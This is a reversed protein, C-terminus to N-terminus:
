LSFVDYISKLRNFRGINNIERSQLGKLTKLESDLLLEEEHGKVDERECKALLIKFESKFEEITSLIEAMSFIISNETFDYASKQKHRFLYFTKSAARDASRPVEQVELINLKVLKYVENRVSKEKLLVANAISKEDGLKQTKICRLIRFTNQGLTAKIMTEFYNQKLQDVLQNFPVTYSGPTVEVLFQVNSGSSLLKLHNHVLSTSHPDSSGNSFIDNDLEGNGNLHHDLNDDLLTDMDIPESKVRARKPEPEDGSGLRKLNKSYNSTLITNRLDITDPLVRIIDRVTFVIKKEDVLKNELSTIFERADEPDNILGSIRLFDHSLEPSASEILDLALEYIKATVSGIKSNALTTLAVSRLHKKFRQLNFVVVLNPQLRKLGDQTHYLDKPSHGSEMLEQYRVKARETAEAVRKIESTTTNRPINQLVEKYVQSWIDNVHNFNIPQLRKLWKDQFLKFILTEKELKLEALPISQLYDSIKIHGNSLIIQIIEACEEGYKSKMLTLIDGSHIFMEIGEPNFDYLAFKSLPPKWYVICNLQILLVLASKIVNQSLKTRISIDKASLRGCSILISIIVAAVEGLHSKAISTYLHLKPSQGKAADWILEDM